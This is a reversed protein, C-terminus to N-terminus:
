ESEGERPDGYLGFIHAALLNLSAQAMAVAGTVQQRIVRQDDEGDENPADSDPAPFDLFLECAERLNSIETWVNREAM